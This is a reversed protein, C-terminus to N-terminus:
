LTSGEPEMSEVFVHLTSIGVAPPDFAADVLGEIPPAGQFTDGLPVSWIENKGAGKVLLQTVGRQAAQHGLTNQHRFVGTYTVNLLLEVVRDWDSVPPKAVSRGANQGFIAHAIFEGLERGNTTVTPTPFPPHQTWVPPPMSLGNKLHRDIVGFWGAVEVPKNSLSYTESGYRRTDTFTFSPWNQYLGLQKVSSKGALQVRGAARAMKAQILSATRTEPRTDLRDVVVLLDALECRTSLGTALFDVMPSGHCFVGEMRVQLGEPALITWWANAIDPVAGLVVAAVYGVESRPQRIMMKAGYKLSDAVISNAATSLRDLTLPLM